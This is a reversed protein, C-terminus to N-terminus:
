GLVAGVWIETLTQLAIEPAVRPEPSGFVDLLYYVNMLNLARAAQEPDSLRGRGHASLGRLTDAILREFREM